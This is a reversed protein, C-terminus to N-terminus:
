TDTQTAAAGEVRSRIEKFGDIIDWFPPPPSSADCKEDRTPHPFRLRFCHLAIARGAEFSSKGGYKMDGAVPCGRHSFQVRIQHKRGTGLRILVVQRGLPLDALVQYELDCKKARAEDKKAIRMVGKTKSEEIQDVLQGRAAAMRGEIVALYFKEVTRERFAEVLRSAAKSTKAFVVVGSVPQDIRNVPQLFVNGPKNRTEKLMAKAVGLASELGRQAPHNEDHEVLIGAPKDIVLCHNDELIIKLDQRLERLFL